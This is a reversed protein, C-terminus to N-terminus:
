ADEGTDAPPTVTALAALRERAYTALAHGAGLKARRSIDFKEAIGPHRERWEVGPMDNYGAIGKLAETLAAVRGEAAALRALADDREARAAHEKTRWHQWAESPTLDFTCADPAKCGPGPQTRDHSAAVVIGCAVCMRFADTEARLADREARLAALAEVGSPDALARLRHSLAEHWWRARSCELQQDLPPLLGLDHRHSLAASYAEDDTLPAAAREVVLAQAAEADELRALADLATHALDPAAATLAANPETQEVGTEDNSWHRWFHCITKATLGQGVVVDCDRKRWPGPTTGNLLAEIEQKTLLTM